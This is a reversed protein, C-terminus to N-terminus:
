YKFLVIKVLALSYFIVDIYMADHYETTGAEGYLKPRHDDTTTTHFSCPKTADQIDEIHLVHSKLQTQAHNELQQFHDMLTEKDLEQLCISIDDQKIQDPKMTLAFLLARHLFEYQEVTQVMKPRNQRLDMVCGPIDVAGDVEGQQALIDLAIYTGTRGVGASCHVITPALHKSPTTIVRHRFEVMSTVDEPIGKDPWVTYQLHHIERVASDKSLRFVRRTFEAYVEEIEGKVEVDGYVETTGTDPWYQECQMSFSGLEIINALMVIKEVNNQWVMSWFIGYDGLQASTPGLTAIYENQRKFGHIFSANIYDPFYGEVKVRSDDYPYIGRYRNRNVNAVLQSASYPKLLGTPIKKFDDKYNDMNKSAVHGPLAQVTIKNDRCESRPSPSPRPRAVPKDRVKLTSQNEYIGDSEEEADSNQIPHCSDTVDDLSHAHVLFGGDPLFEPNAYGNGNKTKEETKLSHKRRYLFYFSACQIPLSVKTVVLVSKNNTSKRKRRVVCIVIVVIIVLLVIAAVIIGWFATAPLMGFASNGELLAQNCMRGTFGDVCGHLCRGDIDACEIDGSLYFGTLCRDCKPSSPWSSSLSCALCNVDIGDCKEVCGDGFYGEVCGNKCETESLCEMNDCIDSCPCCNGDKPYYISMMCSTCEANSCLDSRCQCIMTEDNFGPNCSSCDTANLCRSCQVPCDDSCLDGYKGDVCVDCRPGKFLASCSCSGTAPDCVDTCGSSCAHECNEGYRGPACNDCDNGTFHPDCRCMGSDKDCRNNLCHKSCTNQCFDGYRGDICSQCSSFSTCTACNRRCQYVCNYRPSYYGNRCRDCGGFAKCHCNENNCTYQCLDGFKGPGCSLCYNLDTCTACQQLCSTCSTGFSFFGVRCSICSSEASCRCSQNDCKRECNDGYFGDKCTVCGLQQDCTVCNEGCRHQCTDGWYREICGAVCVDKGTNDLSCSTRCCRCQDCDQSWAKISIYSAQLAWKM